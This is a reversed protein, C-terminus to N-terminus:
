FCAGLFRKAVYGDVPQSIEVWHETESGTLQVNTGTPLATLRESYRNPAIRVNLGSSITVQRCQNDSTEVPAAVAETLAGCSSLYNASVYGQIPAAIPAWGDAGLSELTVNRGSPIVGVVEATLSPARRVNLGAISSSVQRCNDAQALLTSPSRMGASQTQSVRGESATAPLAVLGLSATAFSAISFRTLHKMPRDIKLVVLFYM